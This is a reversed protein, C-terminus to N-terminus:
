FTHQLGVAVASAKDGLMVNTSLGHLNYSGGSGNDVMVYGIYGTTRKSFSHLYSIQYQIASGCDGCPVAIETEGAMTVGFRVM